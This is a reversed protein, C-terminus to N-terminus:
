FERLLLHKATALNIWFDAASSGQSSLLTGGSGQRNMIQLSIYLNAGVRAVVSNFKLM